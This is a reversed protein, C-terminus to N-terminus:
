RTIISKVMYGKEYLRSKAKSLFMMVGRAFCLSIAPNRKGSTKMITTIFWWGRRLVAYRAAIGPLGYPM